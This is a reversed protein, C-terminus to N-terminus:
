SHLGILHDGITVPGCSAGLGLFGPGMRLSASRRASEPDVEACTKNTSEATEYPPVYHM